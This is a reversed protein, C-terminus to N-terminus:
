RSSRASRSARCHGDPLHLVLHGPAEARRPRHPRHPHRVQSVHALSTWIKQGNVVYEDGDRVARTGLDALDSGAGPESFLQCWIEEGALLPFLYREKQEHPAPTSSRRARGLRHRDPEDAPAVGARALEDDIILQHIPDADLGWPKPWHPAVYGAEALQRM